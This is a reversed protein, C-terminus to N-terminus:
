RARFSAAVTTALERLVREDDDVIRKDVRIRAVRDAHHRRLAAVFADIFASVSELPVEAAHIVALLSAVQEVSCVTGRHRYRIAERFRLGHMCRARTAPEITTDTRWAPRITEVDALMAIAM